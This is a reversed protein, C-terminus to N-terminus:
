QENVVGRWEFGVSGSDICGNCITNELKPCEGYNFDMCSWKFNAYTGDITGGVGDIYSECREGDCHHHHKCYCCLEHCRTAMDQLDAIAASLQMKLKNQVMLDAKLMKNEKILLDISTAADAILVYKDLSLCENAYMKLADVLKENNMVRGWYNM